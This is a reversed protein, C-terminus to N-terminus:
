AANSYVIEGDDPVPTNNFTQKKSNQVAIEANEKEKEHAKKSKKSLYYWTLISVISLLCVSGGIIM